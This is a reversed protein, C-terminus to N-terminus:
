VGLAVLLTGVVLLVFTGGHLKIALDPIQKEAVRIEAPSGPELVGQHKGPRDVYQGGQRTKLAMVAGGSATVLLAVLTAWAFGTRDSVMHGVWIALTVVAAIPHAFAVLDPIRTARANSSWQGAGLVSGYMYSGVLLQLVFLFTVLVAM